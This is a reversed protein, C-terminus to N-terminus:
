FDLLDNMIFKLPITSGVSEPHFQIGTIQKDLTQFAMISRDSKSKSLIKVNSHNFVVGFSHYRCINFNTKKSKFYFKEVVGFHPKLHKIKGGLLIGLAQHGLCIGLVKCPIKKSLLRFIKPYDKPLGPGPGLILLDEPKLDKQNVYNKLSYVKVEHRSRSFYDAINYTFSDEHDQLHIM